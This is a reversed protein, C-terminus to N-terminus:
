PPTSIRRMQRHWPRGTPASLPSPAMTMSPVTLRAARASLLPAAAAAATSAMTTHAPQITSTAPTATPALMPSAASVSQQAPPATSGAPVMMPSAASKAMASSQSQPPPAGGNLKVPQIGNALRASAQVELATPVTVVVNGSDQSLPQSPEYHGWVVQAQYFYEVGPQVTTDNPVDIIYPASNSISPSTGAWKWSYVTTTPGPGLPTGVGNPAITVTSCGQLGNGLQKGQGCTNDIVGRTVSIADIDVADDVAIELQVSTTGLPVATLVPDAGWVYSATSSACNVDTGDSPPGQCVQYAFPSHPPLTSPDNYRSPLIGSDAHLDARQSWNSSPTWRYILIDTPNPQCTQNPNTWKLDTAYPAVTLNQTPVMPGCVLSTATATGGPGTATLTYTTTLKPHLSASGSPVAVKGVGPELDLGSANASTWGLVAGGSPPVATTDYFLKVTPPAAPPPPPASVVVPTSPKSCNSGGSLAASGSCVEYTYSQGKKVAQDNYVGTYSNGGGGLAAYGIPPQSFGPPNRYISFPDVCNAESQTHCAEFTVTIGLPTVAVRVLGDPPTPTQAAARTACTLSSILLFPLPVVAMIRRLGDAIRALAVGMVCKKAFM